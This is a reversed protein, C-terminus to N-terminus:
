IHFRKLNKYHGDILQNVEDISIEGEIHKHATEILFNFVRLNGVAQLGMSARWLKARERKEVNEDNLYEDFIHM